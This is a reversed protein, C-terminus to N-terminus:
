YLPPHCVRSLMTEFHDLIRKNGAPDLYLRQGRKVHEPNSPQYLVSSPAGYTFKSIRGIVFNDVYFSVAGVAVAKNSHTVPTLTAWMM